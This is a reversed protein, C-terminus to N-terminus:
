LVFPRAWPASLSAAGVFLARRMANVESRPEAFIGRGDFSWTAPIATM